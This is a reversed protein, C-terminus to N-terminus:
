AEACETCFVRHRDSGDSRGHTMPPPTSRHACEIVWASDCCAWCTLLRAPAFCLPCAGGEREMDPLLDAEQGPANWAPAIMQEM